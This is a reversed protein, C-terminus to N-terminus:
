KWVESSSMKIWLVPINWSFKSEIWFHNQVPGYFWDFLILCFKDSKETSSWSSFFLTKFYRVRPWGTCLTILPTSQHIDSGSMTCASHVTSSWIKKLSQCGQFPHSSSISTTSRDFHLQERGRAEWVTTSNFAIFVYLCSSFADLFAFFFATLDSGHWRRASYCEPLESTIHINDQKSLGQEAM